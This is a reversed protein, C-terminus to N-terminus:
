QEDLYTHNHIQKNDDRFPQHSQLFNIAYVSMCM